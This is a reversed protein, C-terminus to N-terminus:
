LMAVHTNADFCGTGVSADLFKVIARQGNLGESIEFSDYLVVYDAM